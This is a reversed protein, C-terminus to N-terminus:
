SSQIVCKVSTQVSARIFSTM